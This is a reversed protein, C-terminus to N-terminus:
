AQWAAGGGCSDGRWVCVCGSLSRGERFQIHEWFVTETHFFRIVCHICEPFHSDSSRSFESHEKRPFFLTRQFTFLGKRVDKTPHRTKHALDRPPHPTPPPRPDFEPGFTVLPSPTSRGAPARLALLVESCLRQVCAEGASGRM